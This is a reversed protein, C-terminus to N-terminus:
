MKLQHLCDRFFALHVFFGYATAAFAVNQIAFEVVINLVLAITTQYDPSLIAYFFQMRQPDIACITLINVGSSMLIFPSTFLLLDQIGGEPRKQFEVSM